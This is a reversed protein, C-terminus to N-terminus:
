LLLGPVVRQDPRNFFPSELLVSFEKWHEIRTVPIRGSVKDALIEFSREPQEEDWSPVKDWYGEPLSM